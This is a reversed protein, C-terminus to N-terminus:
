LLDAIPITVIDGLSVAIIAPSIASFADPISSPNRSRKLPVSITVPVTESTSADSVAMPSYTDFVRPKVTHSIVLVHSLYNKYASAAASFSGYGLCDFAQRDLVVLGLKRYLINDPNAIIHLLTVQKGPVLEQVIPMKDHMKTIDIDAM